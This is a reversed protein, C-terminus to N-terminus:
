ESPGSPGSPGSPLSRLPKKFEDFSPAPGGLPPKAPASFILDGQLIPAPPTRELANLTGVVYDAMSILVRTDIASNGQYVNRWCAGYFPERRGSGLDVITQDYGVQAGMGTSLLKKLRAKLLFENVGESMLDVELQDFVLKYLRNIMLDGPVGLTRLKRKVMWLHLMQLHFVNIFNRPVACLTYFEPRITQARIREVALGARRGSELSLGDIMRQFINARVPEYPEGLQSGLPHAVKNTSIDKYTTAFARLAPQVRTAARAVAVGPM